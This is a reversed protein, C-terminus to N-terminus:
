KERWVRVWETVFYNNDFRTTEDPDQEWAGIALNLMLYMPMDAQKIAGTDTVRHVRKGDFYFDMFDKTWHVGFDHFDETLDPLNEVWGGHSRHEQWDKGYHLAAHYRKPNSSLVEMMDIEPPWGGRKPLTWFAPWFGRGKPMKMRAEAYGFHFDFKGSTHVAGAQFDVSLTKGEFKAKNEAKPHREGRARIILKGDAIRVNASDMYARHNHIKGWPYDHSWKREDLSKGNFEDEFVPKWKAADGPPAAHLGTACALAVLIPFLRSSYRYM